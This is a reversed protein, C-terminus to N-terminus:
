VVETPTPTSTLAAHQDSLWQQMTLAQEARWQHFEVLQQTSCLPGPIWCVAPCQTHLAALCPRGPILPAAYQALLEHDGVHESRTFKISFMYERCCWMSYMVTSTPPVAWHNQYEDCDCLVLASSIGDQWVLKMCEDLETALYKQFDERWMKCVRGAMLMHPPPTCTITHSLGPRVHQVNSATSRKPVGGRFIAKSLTEQADETMQM